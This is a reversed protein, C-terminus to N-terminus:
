WEPTYDDVNSKTVLIPKLYQTKAIKGGKAVKVAADIALTGDQVPSQIITGFISGDKIGAFGQTSGGLGVVKISGTKGADAIAQAAGSATTDDEGFITTLKDGFRTIFNAAVTRSQDKDWNGTQQDLISIGPAEKKLEAVFGNTRGTQATTGLAGEVIAVNGTKGIAQVMLKAAEGGQLLDNPGTFGATYATGSKDVGTNSAIVPIGATKAKLLSPVVSTADVAAVVIASPKSAIAQTFQQAQKSANFDASYIKVTVGLKKAEKQMATAYTALYPVNTGSILASVTVKGGSSSNSAPSSGCAALALATALGLVAVGAVRGTCLSFIKM